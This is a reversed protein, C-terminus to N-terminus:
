WAGLLKSGGHDTLTPRNNLIHPKILAKNSVPTLDIKLLHRPANLHDAVRWVQFGPSTCPPNYGAPLSHQM